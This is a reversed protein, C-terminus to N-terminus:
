LLFIAPPNFFALQYYCTEELLVIIIIAAYKDQVHASNILCFPQQFRIGPNDCLYQM